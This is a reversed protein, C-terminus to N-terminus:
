LCLYLHEAQDNPLQRTSAYEARRKGGARCVRLAEADTAESRGGEGFFNAMAIKVSAGNYDSVIPQSPPICGPLAFAAALALPGLANHRM